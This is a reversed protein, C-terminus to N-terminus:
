GQLGLGGADYADCFADYDRHVTQAYTHAYDLVTADGGPIPRLVGHMDTTPGGHWGVGRLHSWAAICALGELLGQTVHKGRGALTLKNAIPQLRRVMFSAGDDYGAEASTM